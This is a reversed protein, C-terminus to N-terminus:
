SLACSYDRYRKNVILPMPIETELSVNEATADPVLQLFDRIQQVWGDIIKDNELDAAKGAAVATDFEESTLGFVACLKDKPQRDYYPGFYYELGSLLQWRVEKRMSELEQYTM